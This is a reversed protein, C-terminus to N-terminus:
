ASGATPRFFGLFGMGINDTRIASIQVPDGAEVMRGNGIVMAVHGDWVALDGPQLDSARVAAGIGQEQALRPLELGAQRYAWQTLGSCDLGQGAATGGWSYPVGLQTLAARVATAAQENPARVVTGDPLTVAVGGGLTRPRIRAPGSARTAMARTGSGTRTGTGASGSGSGSGAAAAPVAGMASGVSGLGSGSGNGAPGGGSGTGSTGPATSGGASAPTTAAGGTPTAGSVTDPATPTDRALGGVTATETGLSERTRQLVALAQELHEAALRLVAILGAPNTLTPNAANGQQVFSDVIRKLESHGQKVVAAASQLSTGLQGTHAAIAQASSGGRGITRQAAGADSGAWAHGVTVNASRTQATVQELQTRLTAIARDIGASGIDGTGVSDLIAYMPAALTDVISM